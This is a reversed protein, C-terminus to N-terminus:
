ILISEKLTFDFYNASMKIEQLTQEKVWSM